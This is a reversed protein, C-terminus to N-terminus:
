VLGRVLKAEVEFVKGSGILPKPKKLRRPKRLEWVFRMGPEDTVWTDVVDVVGLISQYVLGYVDPCDPCDRRMREIFMITQGQRTGPQQGGAIIVLPGRYNTSGTRKESTAHGAMVAWAFPQQLTLAPILKPKRKAM